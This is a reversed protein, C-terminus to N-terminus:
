NNSKFTAWGIQRRSSVALAYGESFQLPALDGLGALPASPDVTFPAIPGLTLGANWIVLSGNWNPPVAFKFYAGGAAGTVFTQAAADHTGYTFTCFVVTLIMMLRKM